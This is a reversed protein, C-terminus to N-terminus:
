RAHAVAVLAHDATAHASRRARDVRRQAQVARVLRAARAEARVELTALEVTRESLLLHM